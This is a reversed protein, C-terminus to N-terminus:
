KFENISIIILNLLYNTVFFYKILDGSRREEL